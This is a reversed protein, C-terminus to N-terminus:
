LFYKPNNVLYSNTNNTLEKSKIKETLLSEAEHVGSPSTPAMCLTTTNVWVTNQPRVHATGLKCQWVSRM